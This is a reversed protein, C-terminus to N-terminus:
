QASRMQEKYKQGIVMGKGVTCAGGVLLVVRAVIPSIENMSIAVNIAQGTARQARESVYIFPDVKMDSIRNIIRQRHSKIPVIFRRIVEPAVM